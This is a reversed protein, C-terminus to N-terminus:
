QGAKVSTSSQLNNVDPKTSKCPIDNITNEFIPREDTTVVDVRLASLIVLKDIGSYVYVVVFFILCNIFFFCCSSVISM